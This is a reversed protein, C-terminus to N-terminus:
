KTQQRDISKHRSITHQHGQLALEIRELSESVQEPCDLEDALAEFLTQDQLAAAFLAQREDETLTGTAYGGLLKRIDDTM